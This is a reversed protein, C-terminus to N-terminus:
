RQKSTTTSPNVDRLSDADCFYDASAAASNSLVRAITPQQRLACVLAITVGPSVSSIGVEERG